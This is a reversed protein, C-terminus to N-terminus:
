NQEGFFENYVFNYVVVVKLLPAVMIDVFKMVVGYELVLNNFSRDNQQEISKIIKELIDNGTVYPEIYDSLYYDIQIPLTCIYNNWQKKQIDEVDEYVFIAPVDSDNISAVGRKVPVKFNQKLRNLVEDIILKRKM